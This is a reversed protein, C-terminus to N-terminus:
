GRVPLSAAGSNMLLTLDVGTMGEMAAQGAGRVEPAVAQRAQAQLQGQMEVQQEEQDRQQMLEMIAQLGIGSEILQRLFVEKLERVAEEEPSHIVGKLYQERFTEVTIPNKPSNLLSLGAM